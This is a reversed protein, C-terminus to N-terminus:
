LDRVIIPTTGTCDDGKKRIIIMNIIHKCTCRSNHTHNYYINVRGCNVGRWNPMDKVCECMTSAYTDFMPENNSQGSVVYIIYMCSKPANTINMNWSHLTLTIRNHTSSNWNFTRMRCLWYPHCYQNLSYFEFIHIARWQAYSKM